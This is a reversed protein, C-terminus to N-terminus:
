NANNQGQTEIMAKEAEEVMAKYVVAQKEYFFRRNGSPGGAPPAEWAAGLMDETPERPVLVFNSDDYEIANKLPCNCSTYEGFDIKYLNQFKDKLQDALMEMNDRQDILELVERDSSKILVFGEPVAKAKAEEKGVALVRFVLNDFEDKQEETLEWEDMLHAKLTKIAQKEEKIDM